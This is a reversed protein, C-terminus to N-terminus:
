DVITSSHSTYFLSFLFYFFVDHSIACVTFTFCHRIAIYVYACGHAHTYICTDDSSVKGSREVQLKQMANSRVFNWCAPLLGAITNMWVKKKVKNYLLAFNIPRWSLILINECTMITLNRSSLQATKKKNKAKKNRQSEIYETLSFSYYYCKVPSLFITKKALLPGARDRLGRLPEFLIAKSSAFRSCLYIM